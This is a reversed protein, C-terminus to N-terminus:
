RTLRPCTMFQIFCRLLFNLKLLISSESYSKVGENEVFIEFRGVIFVANRVFNLLNRLLASYEPRPSM